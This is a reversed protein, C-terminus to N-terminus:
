QDNLNRLSSIIDVSNERQKDKEQTLNLKHEINSLFYRAWHSAMKYKIYESNNPNSDKVPFSKKYWGQNTLLNIIKHLIEARNKVDMKEILKSIHYKVTAVSVFRKESIQTNNLGSMIDTLM